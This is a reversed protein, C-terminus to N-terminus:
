GSSVLLIRDWVGAYRYGEMAMTDSMEQAVTWLIWLIRVKRAFHLAADILIVLDGFLSEGASYFGGNKQQQRADIIVGYGGRERL